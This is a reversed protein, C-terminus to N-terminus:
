GIKQIHVTPSLFYTAPAKYTIKVIEGYGIFFAKKIENKKTGSVNTAMFSHEGPTLNFSIERNEIVIFDLNNDIHVDLPSLPGTSLSSREFKVILTSAKAARNVYM